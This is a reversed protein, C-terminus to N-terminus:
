APAFELVRSPRSLREILAFCGLSVAIGGFVDMLYHGGILPTTALMLVAVTVIPVRLWAGYRAFLIAFMGLATHFSPFAVLGRTGSDLVSLDGRRIHDIYLNQEAGAITGLAQEVEGPINFYAFGSGAPLLMGVVITVLASLVVFALMREYHDMDRRVLASALAALVIFATGFAYIPSAAAVVLPSAAGAHVYASFDFGVMADLQVLARDVLPFNARPALYSMAMAGSALLPLLATIGLLRSLTEERRLRGYYAALALLVGYIGLCGLCARHLLLRGVWDPGLAVCIGATVLIAGGCLFHCLLTLRSMVILPPM